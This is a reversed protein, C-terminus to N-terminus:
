ALGKPKLNALAPPDDMLSQIRSAAELLNILNEENMPEFHEVVSPHVFLHGSESRYIWGKEILLEVKRRVTERPIDTADSISLANCPRLVKAHADIDDLAIADNGKTLLWAGVNHTAIEGLVMAMVIDGKFVSYISRLLPLTFGSMAFSVRHRELKLRELNSPTLKTNM